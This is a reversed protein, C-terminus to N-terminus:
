IRVWSSPLIDENSVETTRFWHKPAIVTKRDYTNLWAAWWSFTSNSIIQHNCQSMLFLDHEPELNADIFVSNRFSLNEKCWKIDDSFIFIRFSNFDEYKKILYDLASSYYEKSCVGHVSAAVDNSVYDGRRIHIAVSHNSKVSNLYYKVSTPLEDKLTLEKLLRQKVNVFNKESQFYGFYAKARTETLQVAIAENYALGDELYFNFISSLFKNKFVKRLKVKEFFISSLAKESVLPISINFSNLKLPHLKYKDYGSIDLSFDQNYKESLAVATAYQFLQNGLGGTVYVRNMM